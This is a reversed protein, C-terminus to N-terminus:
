RRLSAQLAQRVQNPDAKKGLSRMVQGMFFGLVKTDGSHYKAVADPNSAFVEEIVTSLHEATVTETTTLSSFEEIVLAPKAPYTTTLKKNLLASVVENAAMNKQSCLEFLAEAWITTQQSATLHEAFRQEVGFQEHWRELVVDPLDPLNTRLSEIQPRTFRLPPLDPDPFYRYDAAEEKSRQSVTEGKKSNFGRTEQTPLQNNARLSSQRDVEFAIAQELFRFSNINKVEVKYPPLSNTSKEEPTQVSINAELRMGGQEMDCEALELYRLLHRIKKAYAKAHNPSVIDPETVIEVLPVGSRNFDILSVKKGNHTTHQLKATDEELHIRRIRVTGEPTKLAGKYCFPLDYQSIQYGKPLDPYYYHKRDFKSFSNIKCGLALGLTIVQTVAKKNAVPLGGPLGLCVPCTHINPQKAHFPNNECGCFMKSNTKLEAHIELGCVLSFPSM